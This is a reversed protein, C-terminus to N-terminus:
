PQIHLAVSPPQVFSFIVSIDALETKLWNQSTLVLSNHRFISLLKQIMIVGLYTSLLKQTQFIILTTVTGNLNM